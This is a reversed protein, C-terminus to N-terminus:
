NNKSKTYFTATLKPLLFNELVKCRIKLMPTGQVSNVKKNTYSRENQQYWDSKSGRYDRAVRELRNIIFEINLIEEISKKELKCEIDAANNIDRVLESNMKKTVNLIFDVTQLCPKMGLDVVRRCYTSLDATFRMIDSYETRNLPHIKQFDEVLLEYVSMANIQTEFVM